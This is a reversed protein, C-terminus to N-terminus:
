ATVAESFNITINSNVAINTADDAPTTSSVTPPIDVAGGHPTVSFDDISLGHDAGTNDLDAWRLMIETGNPINLGSITHSLAVRNAALNGNLAGATGGTIPSTFNLESVVTGTSQFEALTGSVTPSGVM